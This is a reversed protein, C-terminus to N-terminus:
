DEEGTIGIKPAVGCQANAVWWSSFAALTGDHRPFAMGTGAERNYSWALRYMRHQDGEGRKARQARHSYNSRLADQATEGVSQPM